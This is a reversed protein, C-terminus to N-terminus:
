LEKCIFKAVAGTEDETEFLTISGDASTVTMYSLQTCGDEGSGSFEGDQYSISIRGHENGSKIVEADKVNKAAVFLESSDSSLGLKIFESECVLTKFPAASISFSMFLFLFVFTKSM